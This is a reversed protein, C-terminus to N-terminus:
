YEGKLDNKCFRFLALVGFLTVWIILSAINQLPKISLMSESSAILKNALSVPLLKGFSFKEALLNGLSYAQVILFLLPLIATRFFFSMVFSLVSLFTWSLTALFIFKWVLPNFVLIKLGDDGFTAHTINITIIISLFAMLFSTSTITILKLFFVQSKKGTYLLTTRMSHLKYESAGYLAGLVIMPITGFFAVDFGMYELPPMAEVLNRCTEPTANLGVSLIQRSSVYALAGQLGLVLIAVIKTSKSYLLKLSESYLKMFFNIM